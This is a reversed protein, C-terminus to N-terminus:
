QFSRKIQDIRSDARYLLYKKLLFSSMRLQHVPFFTLIIHLDSPACMTKGPFAALATPPFNPDEAAFPFARRISAASVVPVNKSM